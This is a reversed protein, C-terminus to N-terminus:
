WNPVKTDASVATYQVTYNLREREKEDFKEGGGRGEEGGQPIDATEPSWIEAPVVHVLRHDNIM